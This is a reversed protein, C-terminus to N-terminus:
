AKEGSLMPILYIMVGLFLEETRAYKFPNWVGVAVYLGALLVVQIGVLLYNRKIYNLLSTSIGASLGFILRKVIKVWFSASGYGLCMSAMIIPMQVFVRWDRTFYFFGVAYIGPALFRRLWKGGMGAMGGMSYLVACIVVLLLKFITRVFVKKESL